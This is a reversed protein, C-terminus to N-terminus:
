DGLVHKAFVGFDTPPEIVGITIESTLMVNMAIAHRLRLAVNLRDVTRDLM